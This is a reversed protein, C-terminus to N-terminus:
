TPNTASLMSLFSYLERAVIEHMKSTPHTEDYWIGGIKSPDDIDFTAAVPDDLVCAFIDWSSFILVSIDPHKTAFSRAKNILTENWQTILSEKVPKSGPFWLCRNIPPIDFFLFNRAGAKYLDEQYEFLQTIIQDLDREAMRPFRNLLAVDNIGVWTVFLTDNENWQSSLWDPKTGAGDVCLFHNEIQLGIGYVRDGGTAFDYVLKRPSNVDMNLLHGVWNPEGDEVFVSAGPFKVGLPEEQTPRPSTRSYGVDCYSAGSCTSNPV